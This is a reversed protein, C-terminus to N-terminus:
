DAIAYGSFHKLRTEVDQGSRHSNVDLLELVNGLDDVYAVYRAKPPRTSCHEYNLTLSVPRAFQLGHPQLEIRVYQGPRVAATIAVDKDLAEAPIKLSHPGLNIEGGARGIVTTASGFDPTECTYLRTASPSASSDAAPIEDATSVSSPGSPLSEVGCAILVGALFVAVYPAPSRLRKMPSSDM